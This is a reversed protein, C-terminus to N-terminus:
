EGALPWANARCGDLGYTQQMMVPAPQGPGPCATHGRGLRHGVEHNLMYERYSAIDGAYDEIGTGWRLANLVVAGGNRCSVRGRTLLPACLRDTLAPSALIIRFDISAGDVRQFGYGESAWGRPDALTAHVARAVEPGDFPLGAEIEVRYALVNGARGPAATGPVVTLRGSAAAPPEVRPPQARGNVTPAPATTPVAPEVTASAAPVSEAAAALSLDEAVPLTPELTTPAVTTPQEIAPTAPTTGGLAPVTLVLAASTTGVAVIIAAAQGVRANLVPVLRGCSPENAFGAAVATSRSCAPM